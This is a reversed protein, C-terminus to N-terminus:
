LRTSVRVDTKCIAMLEDLEFYESIIDHRLNDYDLKNIAM